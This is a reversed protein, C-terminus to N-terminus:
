FIRIGAEAPEAQMDRYYCGVRDGFQKAFFGTTGEDDLTERSWTGDDERTARELTGATGDQYVITVTGDGAVAIHADDGVLHLGDDRLGDDVIELDDGSLRRYRLAESWGDV